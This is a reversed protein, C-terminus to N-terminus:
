GPLPFSILTLKDGFIKMRHAGTGVNIQIKMVSM